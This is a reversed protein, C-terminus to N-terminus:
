EMKMAIVQLHSSLKNDSLFQQFNRRVNDPCENLLFDIYQNNTLDVNKEVQEREIIQVDLIGPTELSLVKFRCEKLLLEISKPNFYQLHEPPHINVTDRKMLKFDFGEGNPCAISIIGGPKLKQYCTEIFHKPEFLHEILDNMSLLNCSNNGIDDITGFVTDLGLSACKEICDSSVDLAIVKDFINQKKLALAFAGSGAGIDVAISHEPLHPQIVKIMRKVRPEYQVRKRESNTNLLLQTWFKPAEYKNYFETLLRDTPRPSVFLTKCEPCKKHTFGFKKFYFDGDSGCAPCPTTIFDDKFALFFSIGSIKRLHTAKDMMEKPRMNDIDKAM